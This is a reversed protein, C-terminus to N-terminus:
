KEELYKQTKDFNSCIWEIKEKITSFKEKGYLTEDIVEFPTKGNVSEFNSVEAIEYVDLNGGYSKHNKNWAFDTSGDYCSGTM